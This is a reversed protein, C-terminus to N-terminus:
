KRLEAREPNMLPPYHHLRPPFVKEPDPDGPFPAEASVSIVGSAVSRGGSERLFWGSGPPGATTRQDPVRMRSVFILLKM